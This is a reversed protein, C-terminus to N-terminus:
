HIMDREEQKKEEYLANCFVQVAAIAEEGNKRIEETGSVVIPSRFINEASISEYTNDLIILIDHMRDSTDINQFFNCINDAKYVLPKVGNQIHRSTSNNCQTYVNDILMYCRRKMIKLEDNTLENNTM